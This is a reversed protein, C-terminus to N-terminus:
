HFIFLYDSRCIYDMFQLYLPYLAAIIVVQEIIQSNTSETIFKHGQLYGRTISLFPIILLSISIIRIVFAIDGISNGGELEGIFIKAISPAFIFVILFSIISIIAIIKKSIKFVKSKADYMRKENYESVLKSIAVPFGTISITLFM